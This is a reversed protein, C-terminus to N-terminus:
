GSTCIELGDLEATLSIQCALRDGPRRDPLCALLNHEVKDAPRLRQVSAPGIGVKCTGCSARGGCVALLHLGARRLAALLTEGIRGEIPRSNSSRENLILTIAGAEDDPASLRDAPAFADAFFRQPAMDARELFKARADTVMRPSGCAYVDIGRLSPTQALALEQVRMATDAPEGGEPRSLVPFFAFRPYTEEWRRLTEKHYLDARSRVGWYLRIPTDRREEGLTQALIAFFPAIGTGTALLLAGASHQSRWRFDGQPGEIRLADGTRASRALWQSFRGDQRKRIHFELIGSSPPSAMSFRRRTGTKSIVALHQGPVYDFAAGDPLKLALGIVDGGIPRIDAIEALLAPVPSQAGLAGGPASNTEADPLTSAPPLITGLRM